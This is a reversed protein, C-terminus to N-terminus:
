NYVPSSWDFMGNSNTKLRPYWEKRPMQLGKPNLLDKVLYKAAGIESDVVEVYTRNIPPEIQLHKRYFKWWCEKITEVDIHEKSVILGNLHLWNDQVEKIFSFENPVPKLKERFARRFSQWLKKFLSKRIVNGVPLTVYYAYNALIGAIEWQMAWKARQIFTHKPCTPSDCPRSKKKGNVYWIIHEGQCDYDCFATERNCIPTYISYNSM